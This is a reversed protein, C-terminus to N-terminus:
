NTHTTQKKEPDIPIVVCLVCVWLPFPFLASNLHPVGFGVLFAMGSKQHPLYCSM